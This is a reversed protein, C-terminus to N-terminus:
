NLRYGPGYQEFNDNYYPDRKLYKLWRKRMLDSAQKVEVMDRTDGQMKGVSMSEHHYLEVYPTYVNQYGVDLLKLNLDVDQYTVRLVPDFGKVKNFKKKSVMCCAATVASCNRINSDYTTTFVDQKPDEGFFPHFAIDRESLVVGAHQITKNPFYLRVGVMGVEDRQAHELMGEIWDQTIVETDNNLFLLYEGTAHKAGHNCALSFNFKKGSWKTLKIPNSTILRSNYFEWVEPDTSGTDVLIIEFNAYSTKDIISLLCQRLIPLNDKTPIVISVKPNGKIHYRVRWFGSYLKHNKVSAGYSSDQLANRLAVRQNIYAYPKSAATKATSTPAKRWSYLIKPVHVVNTTYQTFRLFLDWDQAGETGVKFGGIHKVVSHRLVAFHTIYNCSKLYDPSWDPKFYPELHGKGDEIKDEDSYLLDVKPELNIAKVMEFLANPLLIDDHDLLAIFDGSALKLAENSAGAIHMNQQMRVWKIKKNKRAYEKVVRIASQSPSADDAICLEWNPYTQGLVSEICERLYKEPTNYIPVLISILPQHKFKSSQVQQEELEQTDSKHTEFWKRYEERRMRNTQFRTAEFKFERVARKPSAATRLGVKAVRKIKSHLGM